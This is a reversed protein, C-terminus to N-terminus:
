DEEAAEEVRINEQLTAVTEPLGSLHLELAVDSYTLHGGLGNDIIRVVTLEHQIKTYVAQHMRLKLPRHATFYYNIYQSHKLPLEKAEFELTIHVADSTEALLSYNTQLM